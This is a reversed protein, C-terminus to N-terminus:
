TNTHEIYTPITTSKNSVSSAYHTCYPRYFPRADARRDTQRDWSNVAAAAHPPNAATPEAPPLYRDIAAAALRRLVAHLLVTHATAFALLAANDASTPLQLRVQKACATNNIIIIIINNYM